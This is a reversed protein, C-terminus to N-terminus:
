ETIFSWVKANTDLVVALGRWNSKEIVSPPQTESNDLVWFVM